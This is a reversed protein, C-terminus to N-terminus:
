GSRRADARDPSYQTSGVLQQRDDHLLVRVDIGAGVLCQALLRAQEEAEVHSAFHLPELGDPCDVLWGSGAPRVSLLIDTM